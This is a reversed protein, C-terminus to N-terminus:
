FVTCHFQAIFLYIFIQLIATNPTIIRNDELHRVPGALIATVVDGVALKASLSGVATHARAHAHTDTGVEAEIKLSIRKAFESNSPGVPTLDESAGDSAVSSAELDGASARLAM